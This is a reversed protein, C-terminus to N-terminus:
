DTDQFEDILAVPFQRRIVDALRAGNPQRLAADLRTLRDNFGMQARRQQEAAFRRAVWRAAFRLLDARAQPLEALAAQLRPIQAFAPHAPPNGDKWAEAMGEPTFRKWGTKLDPWEAAPDAVWDRLAKLWPEYYRRQIKSGVVQKAAVGADLLAELEDAWKSWPAKLTALAQAKADRAAAVAGAPEPADELAEAHEVLKGLEGQLADPTAWWGAIQAVADADLHVFFSRWFDRVVEALLERQDTELQQTFLSDSDFAHENLMRKCWGHITSVAAEDMWEAALQLKRACGPWAEPPYGARLDHLFDKGREVTDVAAPDARFYGAAEALRARIRDRLEKTAADTFTVVLIEPPTLPRAFAQEGGHGLVLRVYLAAITFTKGTGASAEILRSGHLPFALPDLKQPESMTQPNM